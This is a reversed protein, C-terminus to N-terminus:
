YLTSGQQFLDMVVAAGILIVGIVAILQYILIIRDIRLRNCPKGILTLLYHQRWRISGHRWSKRAPPIHNLVAVAELAGAMSMVAERTIVCNRIDPLKGEALPDTGSDLLGDPPIRPPSMSLHQVAFTDAQREFRRSIYGFILLGVVLSGGTIFLDLRDMTVQESISPPVLWYFKLWWIVQAVYTLVYAAASVCVMLLAVLTPMHRRRIHGLEHAMVAEIHRENLSEILGDTLLIYRLLGIVGMVAGNIMGGHTRWVLIERAKANHMKCMNILRRRLLGDPLPITDWAFRILLPAFFFIAVVGVVQLAGRYAEQMDTFIWRNVLESWFLILGLPLLMFLFQHRIQLSIYQWRTLSPPIPRAQDLHRILLAQRVRRDIPYYAYWILTIAILPPLTAVAEDIFIMDGLLARVADLWHMGLINWCHVAVILIPAMGLVRDAAALARLDGTRDLVRVTRHLRFMSLST